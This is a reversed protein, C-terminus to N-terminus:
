TIHTIRHGPMMSTNESRRLIKELRNLIKPGSAADCLSVKRICLVQFYYCMINLQALFIQQRCDDYFLQIMLQFVGKLGNLVATIGTSGFGDSRWTGLCWM